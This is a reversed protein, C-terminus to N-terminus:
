FTSEQWLGICSPNALSVFSTCCWALTNGHSCLITLKGNFLPTFQGSKVSRSVREPLNSCSQIARWRGNHPLHFAIPRTRLAVSRRIGSFLRPRPAPNAALQFPISRQALGHQPVQSLAPRRLLHRSVHRLFRSCRDDGVLGDITEAFRLNLDYVSLHRAGLVITPPVVQRSALRLPSGMPATPATRGGENGLATWQRFTGLRRGVALGGAVPLSVQHEKPSAAVRHEGQVLAVRAQEDSGTLGALRCVGDGAGHVIQERDQRFGPSLGDSEVVAGLERTM